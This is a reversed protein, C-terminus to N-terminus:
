TNGTSISGGKTILLQLQDDPWGQEKTKQKKEMMEKMWERRSEM